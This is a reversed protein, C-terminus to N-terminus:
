YFPYFGVILLIKDVKLPNEPADSFHNQENANQAM